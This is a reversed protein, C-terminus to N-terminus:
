DRRDDRDRDDSSWRGDDRTADRREPGRRDDGWDTDRGRHDRDNWDTDRRGREDHGGHHGHDGYGGRFRGAELARIMGMTAVNLAFGFTGAAAMGLVLGVPGFNAVVVSAFVSAVAVGGFYGVGYRFYAGGRRAYTVSRDLAVELPEDRVVLLYPTGYLLYSLLVIAPFGVILLLVPSVSLLLLSLGVTVLLWIANFAVMRGAYRQVNAGFDVRRDALHDDISGLYGAALVGEVVVLLLLTLLSSLTVGGGAAVGIDAFTWLDAVPAPFSLSVGVHFGAPSLARRVNGFSLLTVIAPVLGLVLVPRSREWGYQLWPLLYPDHPKPIPSSRRRSM